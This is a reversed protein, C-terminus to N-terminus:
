KNGKIVGFVRRGFALSLLFFVALFGTSGGKNTYSEEPLQTVTVTITAQSVSQGDSIAYSIVDVGFFSENPTYTITGDSNILLSGNTATATTVTINDSDVDSVLQDVAIVGESAQVMTHDGDQAIPATNATVNITVQKTASGGNTDTVGITLTVLGTYNVPPTYVLESQFIDVNGLNVTASTLSVDHGDADSSNVMLTLQETNRVQPQETLTGAVDVGHIVPLQNGNNLVGVGGPDVVTGNVEGDADYRGGDEIIMQVCWHGQTLGLTWVNKIDSPKAPPPCYGAEGQASWLSNAADNDDVTFTVWETGTLSPSQQAVSSPLLKRYVANAPIPSLQPFVIKLSQGVQPMGYAIYDFVGGINTALPDSILTDDAQNDIDDSSIISGEGSRKFEGRRLCVGPDGEVLFGNSKAAESPLVNCENIADKFDPIGDGDTDKYGEQNDPILDGDTDRDTLQELAALVEIYVESKVTAGGNDTVNLILHYTGEDLTAPDFSFRNEATESNVLDDSLWQYDFSEGPSDNVDAKITVEGEAQSVTLREQSNQRVTLEVEPTVNDNTITVTHTSQDGLNLTELLTFTVTQDETTSLESLDIDFEGRTGSEIVLEDNFIIAGLQATSTTVTYGIWLPYVPSTGNLHVEVTLSDGALIKQNKEFSVLPRVNVTQSAFGENGANDKASWLATNVGPEFFTRGDVLSVPLTNGFRDLASAVGLDTKTFLADADIFVAAPATVVPLVSDQFVNVTLTVSTKAFSGVAGDSISYNIVVDGNYGDVPTYFLQGNVVEVSGINAQARSVVLTDGDEDSDNALVDLLVKSWTTIEISDSVARPM